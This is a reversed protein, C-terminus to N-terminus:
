MNAAVTTLDALDIKSDKNCDLDPNYNPLGPMSRFSGLVQMLDSRTATPGVGFSFPNIRNTTTRM